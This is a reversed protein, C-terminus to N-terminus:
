PTAKCGAAAPVPVRTHTGEMRGCGSAVSVSAIELMVWQTAGKWGAAAPPWQRHRGSDVVWAERGYGSGTIHSEGGDLAADKMERLRASRVVVNRNFLAHRLVRHRGPVRGEHVWPIRQLFSGGPLAAQRRDIPGVAKM